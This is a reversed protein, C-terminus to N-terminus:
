NNKIPNDNDAEVTDTLHFILRRYEDSAEMQKLVVKASEIEEKTYQMCIANREIENPHSYLDRALKYYVREDAKGDRSKSENAASEIAYDKFIKVAFCLVIFVFVVMLVIM